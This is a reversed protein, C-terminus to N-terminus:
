EDLSKWIRHDTELLAIYRALEELSEILRLTENLRREQQEATELASRDSRTVRNVARIEELLHRTHRLRTNWERDQRDIQDAFQQLAELLAPKDSDRQMLHQKLSEFAEGMGTFDFSDDARRPFFTGLIPQLLSNSLHEEKAIRRLGNFLGMYYARELLSSKKIWAFGPKSDLAHRAAAIAADVEAKKIM